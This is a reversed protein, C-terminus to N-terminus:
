PVTRGSRLMTWSQRFISIRDLTEDRLTEDRLKRVDMAAIESACGSSDWTKSASAARFPCIESFAMDLPQSGQNYFEVVNPDTGSYRLFRPWATKVLLKPAESRGETRQPIRSIAHAPSEPEPITSHSAECARIRGAEPILTGAPDAM